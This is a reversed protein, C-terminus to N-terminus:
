ELTISLWGDLARIRTVATVVKIQKHNMRKVRKLERRPLASALKKKIVGARVLQKAASEQEEAASISFDGPEIVVSEMTVSFKLPVTIVQTPIDEKDEQKFGARITLFLQGDDAHIRLPDVKDFVITKIGSDDKPAAADDESFKVERDLLKSLHAELKAKIQGDTMEQGALELRDASANLMSDHM